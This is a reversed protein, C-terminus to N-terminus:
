TYLCLVTATMLVAYGIESIGVVKISPQLRPSVIARILLVGAPLLLWLSFMWGMVAAQVIHYGVSLGYFAKNRKERIMTKVYFVTGSFYLVSLSFLSVAASWDNGGGIQYTVFVISSFLLVAAFDNLLAREQNKRAYYCNILFFPLLSLAYWVLGPKAMLLVGALPALLVGYVLLPKKYREGKGTRILQLLPFTFLYLLLWCLFLPLHLIVPTSAFVGFLFPVILMAWAGHQNPIFSRM